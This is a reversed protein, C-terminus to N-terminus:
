IEEMRDMVKNVIAEKGYKAIIEKIKEEDKREFTISVGFVEKENGEGAIGSELADDIFDLINEEFGFKELDMTIKDLEEDLKMYDWEALDHSKNDVIRFAKQQEETLDKAFIVPIQKLGLRKSAEYRTHGNVIVYKDNLVVPVKFGFEKISEMVKDIANVNIRPNNKYPKILNIDIYEVKM